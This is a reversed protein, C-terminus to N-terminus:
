PSCLFRTVSVDGALRIPHGSTVCSAPLPLRRGLPSTREELALYVVLLSQRPLFPLRTLGGEISAYGLMGDQRAGRWTRGGGRVEVPGLRRRLCLHFWGSRGLAGASGLPLLPM